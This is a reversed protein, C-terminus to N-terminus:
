KKIYKITKLIQQVKETNYIADKAGKSKIDEETKSTSMDSIKALFAVDNSEDLFLYVQATAYTKDIIVYGKNGRFEVDSIVEYKSDKSFNDRRTKLDKISDSVFEFSFRFNNDKNKLIKEDGSEDIEYGGDDDYTVEVSGKDSSVTIVKPNKFDKTPDEECGTVFLVGISLVLILAYSLIRKM